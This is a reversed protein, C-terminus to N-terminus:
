LKKRRSASRRKPKNLRKLRRQSAPNFKKTRRTKIKISQGQSRRTQKMRQSTALQKPANCTSAKAVIRGKRPGSTCRYKRVSKTGSRSWIQSVAEQVIEAFRM